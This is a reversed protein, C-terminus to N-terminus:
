YMRSRLPRDPLRLDFPLVCSYPPDLFPSISSREKPVPPDSNEPEVLVPVSCCTWRLHIQHGKSTLPTTTDVTSIDKHSKYIAAYRSNRDLPSPDPIATLPIWSRQQHLETKDHAGYSVAKCYMYASGCKSLITWRGM